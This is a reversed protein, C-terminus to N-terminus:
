GRSASLMDLPDPPTRALTSRSPRHDCGLGPDGKAEDILGSNVLIPVHSQAALREAACRHPGPILNRTVYALGKYDLAWRAIHPVKQSPVRAEGRLEDEQEQIEAVHGGVGGDLVAAGRAARGGDQRQDPDHIEGDDM